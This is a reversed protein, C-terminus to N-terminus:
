FLFTLGVMEKEIIELKEIIVQILMYSIHYQKSVSIEEEVLM